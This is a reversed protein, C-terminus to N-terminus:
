RIQCTVHTRTVRKIFRDRSAGRVGTFGFLFM